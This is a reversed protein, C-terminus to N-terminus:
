KCPFVSVIQNGVCRVTFYSVLMIILWVTSLISMAWAKKAPIAEWLLWFLLPGVILMSFLYFITCRLWLTNRFSLSIISGRDVHSTNGPMHSKPRYHIAEDPVPNIAALPFLILFIALTANERTPNIYFFSWRFNYQSNRMTLHPQFGYRM